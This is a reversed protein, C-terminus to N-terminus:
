KSAFPSFPNFANPCNDPLGRWEVGDNDNDTAPVGPSAICAMILTISKTINFTDAAYCTQAKTTATATFTRSVKLSYERNPLNPYSVTTVGGAPKPNSYLLGLGYVSYCFTTCTLPTVVDLTGDNKILRYKSSVTYTIKQCADGTHDNNLDAQDPNDCAATPIGTTGGCQTPPCNDISDAIGDADDDRMNSAAPSPYGDTCANGRGNADDDLQDPNFVNPCNDLRMNDDGCIVSLTLSSLDRADIRRTIEDFRATAEAENAAPRCNMIGDGDLDGDPHFANPIFVMATGGAPQHWSRDPDFWDVIGDGDADTDDRVQGSVFRSEDRTLTTLDDVQGAIPGCGAWLGNGSCDTHTDNNDDTDNVDPLGDGDTDWIPNALNIINLGMADPDSSNPIGDGDLDTSPCRM